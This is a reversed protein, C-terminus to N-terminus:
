RADIPRLRPWNSLPKAERARLRRGGFLCIANRQLLSSAMAKRNGEFASATAVEVRPSPWPQMVSAVLCCDCPPSFICFTSKNIRWSPRLDTFVPVHKDAIFAYSSQGRDAFFVERVDM